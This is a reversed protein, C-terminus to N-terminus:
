ATSLTAQVQAIAQHAAPITKPVVNFNGSLHRLRTYQELVDVCPIDALKDLVAEALTLASSLEKNAEAGVTRQGSQASTYLSAVRERAQDLSLQV